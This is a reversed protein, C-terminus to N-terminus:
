VLIRLGSFSSSSTTIFSYDATTLLISAIRIFFNALLFVSSYIFIYVSFGFVGSFDVSYYSSGSFCSLQFFSFILFIYFSIFYTLETVTLVGVMSCFSLGMAFLSETIYDSLRYVSSFYASSIM